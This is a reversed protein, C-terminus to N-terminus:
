ELRGRPKKYWAIEGDFAIPATFASINLAALDIIYGMLVIGWSYFFNKIDFEKSHFALIWLLSFLFSLVIMGSFYPPWLFVSIISLDVLFVFFVSLFFRKVGVRLSEFLGGFLWRKRHEWLAKMTDQSSEYCTVSPNFVGKIKLEDFKLAMLKDANVSTEDLPLVKELSERRVFIGRGLSEPKLFYEMFINNMALGSDHVSYVFKGKSYARIGTQVFDISEDTFPKIAESIYDKDIIVEPDILFVIDGDAIRMAKNVAAAKDPNRFGEATSSIRLNGYRKSLEAAIELTRDASGQDVIIIDFYLYEGNEIASVTREIIKEVNKVPIVISIKGNFKQDFKKPKRVTMGVLIFFFSVAVTFSIVFPIKTLLFVIALAALFSVLVMFILVFKGNKASM